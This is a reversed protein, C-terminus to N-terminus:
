MIHDSRHVMIAGRKVGAYFVGFSGDNFRGTKDPSIHTFPAMVYSAGAGGVRRDAPILDLNGITDALRPNTRTEAGGLLGWDSPDAIDEFLDIPPYASNILRHYRPWQVRTNPADVM